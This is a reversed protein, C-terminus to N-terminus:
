AVSRVSAGDRRLRLANRTGTLVAAARRPLDDLPTTVAATAVPAGAHLLDNHLETLNEIERKDDSVTGPQDCYPCHVQYM